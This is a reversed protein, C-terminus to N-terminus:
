SKDTKSVQSLAYFRRSVFLVSKKLTAVPVFFLINVVMEDPLAQFAHEGEEEKEEM